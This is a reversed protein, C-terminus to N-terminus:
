FVYLLRVSDAEPCLELRIVVLEIYDISYTPFLSQLKVALSRANM